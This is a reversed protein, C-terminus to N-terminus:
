LRSYMPLEKCRDFFSAEGLNYHYHNNKYSLIEKIWHLQVIFPEAEFSRRQNGSPILLGKLNSSKRKLGEPFRNSVNASMESRFSTYQDAKKQSVKIHKPWHHTM